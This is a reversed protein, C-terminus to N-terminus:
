YKISRAREKSLVDHVENGLAIMKLETNSAGVTPFFRHPNAQSLSSISNVLENILKLLHKRFFQVLKPYVGDSFSEMKSNHIHLEVQNLLKKTYELEINKQDASEDVDCNIFGINLQQFEFHILILKSLRPDIKDLLKPDNVSLNNTEELYIKSNNKFKNLQELQKTDERPTREIALKCYKHFIRMFEERVKQTILLSTKYSASDLRKEIILAQQFTKDREKLTTRAKHLATSLQMLDQNREILPTRELSLSITEAYTVANSAAVLQTDFNNRFPNENSLTPFSTDKSNKLGKMEIILEQKFTEDRQTLKEKTENLMHNLNTLFQRLELAPIADLSQYSNEAKIFTSHTDNIQCDLTSVKHYEDSFSPFILENWRKLEALIKDYDTKLKKRTELIQKELGEVAYEVECKLSYLNKDRGGTRLAQVRDKFPALIRLVEEPKNYTLLAAKTPALAAELNNSFQIKIRDYLKALQQIGVVASVRLKGSSLFKEEMKIVDKLMKEQLCTLQQLREVPSLIVLINERKQQYETVKGELESIFKKLKKLVELSTTFESFTSFENTFLDLHLKLNEVLYRLALQMEECKEQIQKNQPIEIGKLTFYDKIPKFPFAALKGLVQYIAIIQNKLTLEATKNGSDASFLTDIFNNVKKPELPCTIGESFWGTKIGLHQLLSIRIEEIHQTNLPIDKAKLDSILDNIFKTLQKAFYISDEDNKDGLEMTTFNMLFRELSFYLNEKAGELYNALIDCDSTTPILIKQRLIISERIKIRENNLDIIRPIAENLAEHLGCYYAKDFISSDWHTQIEEILQQTETEKVKNTAILSNLVFDNQCLNDLHAQTFIYSKSEQAYSDFKAKLSHLAQLLFGAETWKNRTFPLKEVPAAINAIRPSPKKQRKHTVSTQDQHQQPFKDHIKNKFNALLAKLLLNPKHKTASLIEQENAPDWLIGQQTAFAKMHKLFLQLASNEIQKLEAMIKKRAQTSTDQNGLLDRLSRIRLLILLLEQFYEQPFPAISGLEDIAIELERLRSLVTISEKGM